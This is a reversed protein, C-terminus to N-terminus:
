LILSLCVEFVSKGYLHLRTDWPLRFTKVHKMRSALRKREKNRDSPLRENLHKWGVAIAYQLYKFDAEEGRETGLLATVKFLSFLRAEEDMGADMSDVILSVMHRVEYTITEQRECQMVHFTKLLEHMEVLDKYWGPQEVTISYKRAEHPQVDLNAEIFGKIQRGYVSVPTCRYHVGPV